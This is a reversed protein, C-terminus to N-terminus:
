SAVVNVKHLVSCDQCDEACIRVTASQIAEGRTTLRECDGEKMFINNLTNGNAAKAIAEEGYM